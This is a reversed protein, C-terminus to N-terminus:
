SQPVGRSIKLRSAGCCCCGASPAVTPLERVAPRNTMELAKTPTSTTLKKSSGKSPLSSTTRKKLEKRGAQGRRVKEGREGRKKRNMNQLLLAAHGQRTRKEAAEAEADAEVAVEV